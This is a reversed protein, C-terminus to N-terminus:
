TYRPFGKVHRYFWLVMGSRLCERAAIFFLRRNNKRQRNRRRRNTFLLAIPLDNYPPVVFNGGESSFLGKSGLFNGVSQLRNHSAIFDGRNKRIFSIRLPCCDHPHALLCSIVKPYRRKKSVCINKWVSLPHGKGIFGFIRLKPADEEQLELLIVM